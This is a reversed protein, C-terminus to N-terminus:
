RLIIEKANFLTKLLEIVKDKNLELIYNECIEDDYYGTIVLKNLIDNSVTISVNENKINRIEM